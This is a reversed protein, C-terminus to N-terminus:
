AQEHLGGNSGYPSPGESELGCSYDRVVDGTAGIPKSELVKAELGLAEIKTSALDAAPSYAPKTAMVAWGRVPTMEDLVKSGDLWRVTRTGRASHLLVISETFRVVRLTDVNEPPGIAGDIEIPPTGVPGRV